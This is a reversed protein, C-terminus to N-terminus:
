ADVEEYDFDGDELSNFIVQLEEEQEWTLDETHIIIQKAMIDEQVTHTTTVITSWRWRLSRVRM